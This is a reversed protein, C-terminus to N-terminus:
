RQEDAYEFAERHVHVSELGDRARSSLDRSLRRALERLEDQATGGEVYELLDGLAKLEGAHLALGVIQQNGAVCARMARRTYAQSRLRSFRDAAPGDNEEEVDFVRLRRLLDDPRSHATRYFPREASGASAADLQVESLFAAVRGPVPVLGGGMWRASQLLARGSGEPIRFFCWGSVGCWLLGSEGGDGFHLRGFSRTFEVSGEVDGEFADQSPDDFDGYASVSAVPLDEVLLAGAVAVMYDGIAHELGDRLQHARDRTYTM